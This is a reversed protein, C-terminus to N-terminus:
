WLDIYVYKIILIPDLKLCDDTKGLIILGQSKLDDVFVANKEAKKKNTLSSGGATLEGKIDALDKKCEWTLIIIPVSTSM